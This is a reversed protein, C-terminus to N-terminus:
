DDLNRAIIFLPRMTKRYHNCLDVLANRAQNWTTADRAADRISNIEDRVTAWDPMAGVVEQIRRAERQAKAAKWTDYEIGWADVQQSTPREGLTAPWDLIVGSITRIGEAHNFKWGLIAGSDQRM